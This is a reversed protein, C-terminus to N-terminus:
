TPQNIWNIGGNTTKLIRGGEGCSWDTKGNVFEIDYLASTIGTQQQQWQSYVSKFIFIFFLILIKTKM